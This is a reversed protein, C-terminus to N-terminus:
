IPLQLGECAAVTSPFVAVTHEILRTVDADTRSPDHSTLILQGVEARMAIRAADQWTSHGWGQYLELHEQPTYQADHFLYDAGRAFDVLADDVDTHGAEHDTAIVVTARPGEIRYSIAGQPHTLEGTSIRLPGIEIPAADIEVFRKHSLTDALPIPFWPARFIGGIADELSMDGPPAGYFTFSNAARYLPKFFQLGQIHDLHYHTLLVHYEQAAATDMDDVRSVGTGADFIVTVANDLVIMFSTTRGGHVMMEQDSVPWSGRAGLVTFTLGKDM